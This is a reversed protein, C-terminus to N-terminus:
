QKRKKEQLMWGRFALVKQPAPGRPRVLYYSGSAPIAVDFLRVLTGAALDGEAISRRVLAIGRADIAAQVALSLDHFIPGAPEALKLGAAKFWPAWPDGDSSILPLRALEAPQAPLRGRNFRPSAVPFYEDDMFKEIELRPWDGNGFRIALDVEDREFDVLAISTHVNMTIEPHAAMFRGIRPMLWRAAFSPLLSVTLRNARAPKRFSEAAEGIERLAARVRDAFLRGDATLVVRRGNRAFLAAGLFEELARVQHSVAGHTVHLEDAARSFSELRAAAEFARLAPLPPLRTEM